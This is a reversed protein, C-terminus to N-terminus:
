VSQGQSGTIETFYKCIVAGFADCIQPLETDWNPGNISYFGKEQMHAVTHTYYIKMIDPANPVFCPALHVTKHLNKGYYGEDDHSLGYHMQGTGQSYGLYFIKDEGTAAKIADINAKDDYMGM